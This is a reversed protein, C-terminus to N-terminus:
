VLLFPRVDRTVLSSRRYNYHSRLGFLDANRGDSARPASLQGQSSPSYRHHTPFFRPSSGASPSYLRPLADNNNYCLLALIHRSPLPPFLGPSDMKVKESKGCQEAKMRQGNKCDLKQLMTNVSKSVGQWVVVLRQVRYLLGEGDLRDLRESGQEVADEDLACLDDLDTREDGM